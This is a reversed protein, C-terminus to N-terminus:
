RERGELGDLAKPMDQVIFGIHNIIGGAPPPVAQEVQRLMIYVGPFQILELPGHTVLTGGM